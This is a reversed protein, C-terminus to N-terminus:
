PKRNLAYQTFTFFASLTEAQWNKSFYHNLYSKTIFPDVGWEPPVNQLIEDLSEHCLTIDKEFERTFTTRIDEKNQQLTRLFNKSMFPATLISENETIQVPPKDLNNGNFIQVHDIPIFDDNDLDFLLNMNGFNRDENSLWIDFLGIKLYQTVLKKLHENPFPFELFFKDIEKYSSNFLSGFCPIKFYHYPFNVWTLHDRQVQVFAFDPVKLEWLKLFTAAIYENFLSSAPVNGTLYKCIYENWDQCFVKVPRSGGTTYCDEPIIERISKLYKEDKIM